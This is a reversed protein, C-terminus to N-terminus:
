SAGGESALLLVRQELSELDQIVEIGDPLELRSALSGGLWLHVGEAMGGWLANVTRSAESDPITVLSLALAAADTEEVARLLDEAPLETGLYLPNAGAASATLAALLLGIEHREGTPTGFVVRPGRFAQVSPTVASGLLSRLVSTALHEQAIGMEGRTWREGIEQVVPIAVERAFRVAGLVSLHTAIRHQFDLADLSELPALLAELHQTSRPEDAGGALRKLEDGELHAVQSVRQGADVAAKVLRLRELDDATYRRTGGPTRVPEVVGYRREWARLLEPSLGTLRAATRLPYTLELADAKPRAQSM